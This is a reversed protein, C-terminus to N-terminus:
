TGGVNPDDGDGDVLHFPLSNSRCLRRVTVKNEHRHLFHPTSRFPVSEQTPAGTMVHEKNIKREKKKENTEQRKKSM